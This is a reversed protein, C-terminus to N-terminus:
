SRSMVDPKGGASLEMLVPYLTSFLRQEHFKAVPLYGHERNVRENVSKAIIQHFLNLFENAKECYEESEDIERCIEHIM